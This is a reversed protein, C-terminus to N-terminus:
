QPLTWEYVDVRFRIQGVPIRNVSANWQLVTRSGVAEAPSSLYAAFPYKEYPALKYIASGSWEDWDEPKELSVAVNVSDASNNVIQLPIYLIEGAAISVEPEVLDAIHEIDHKRWFNRYFEFIGGLEFHIGNNMEFGKFKQGIYQVSGPTIGQFVDGSPDCHALSKGYILRFKTLWGIIVSYDGTKEADLATLSVEAQVLHSKMLSLAIKYYPIGKSPSVSTIDFSPGSGEIGDERDSFFYIKKPQWPSLGEYYNQIDQRERPSTIQAPFITPDGALDFAETAIVGSAQHDGHNEGSSYQPLWTIIVEPRTLRVIRILKELAAGHPLNQLSHLVDQGPTDMGDLFWIKNIGLSLAAQRAEIERILGMAHYQENGISNGGGQGRNTYVISVNKGDDYISKALFSGIATEDDPHAVVLLIDTKFRVDPAPNAPVYGNQAYLEICFNMALLLINIKVM